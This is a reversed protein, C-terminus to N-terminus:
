SNSDPTFNNSISVPPIAVQSGGGAQVDATGVMPTGTVYCVPQTLTTLVSGRAPGPGLEVTGSKDISIVGGPTKVRMGTKNVELVVQGLGANIEYAGSPKMTIKIPATNQGPSGSSFVIKGLKDHVSFVGKDIFIKYTTDKEKSNQASVTLSKTGTIVEGDDEGVAVTRNGGIGQTLAGTMSDNVPGGVSRAVGAYEEVLASGTRRINKTVLEELDGLITVKRDRGVRQSDTTHIIQDRSQFRECLTGKVVQRVNANHVNDQYGMYENKNTGGVRTQYNGARDVWVTFRDNINFRAVCAGLKGGVLSEDDEDQIRGLRLDINPDTDEAFERVQLKFEAPTRESGFTEDQDRTLFSFLGGGTRHEWNQSFERIINTLPIYVRKCDEGAGMELMGGRRMIVHGQDSLALVCDGGNLVPRNMRHDNPDENGDGEDVQKPLTAGGMIFPTADASPKCIYVATNESPMFFSGSGAKGDVMMPQIPVGEIPMGGDEPQVTCTWKVPDIAQVIARGVEVDGKGEYVSARTRKKPGRHRSGM